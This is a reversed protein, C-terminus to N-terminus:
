AMFLRITFPHRRVPLKLPSVLACSTPTQFSWLLYLSWRQTLVYLSGKFAHSIWITEHSLPNINSQFLLARSLHNDLKNPLRVMRWKMPDFVTPLIIEAAIIEYQTKELRIEGLPWWWSVAITSTMINSDALQDVTWPLVQPYINSIPQYQRQLILEPILCTASSPARLRSRFQLKWFEQYFSVSPLKMCLLHSSCMTDQGLVWILSPDLSFSDHTHNSSGQCRWRAAM